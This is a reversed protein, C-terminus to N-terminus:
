KALQFKVSINEETEIPQGAVLTVSYRWQRIANVAAPILLAPGTVSVVDQVLGDRGILARLNVAGEIGHQKADIPYVPDVRSVLRGLQLREGSPSKRSSPELPLRISPYPDAVVVVSGPIDAPAQQKAQPPSSEQERNPPPPASSSAPVSNAAPPNEAQLHPAPPSFAEPAAPTQQQINSAAARDAPALRSPSEGTSIARHPPEGDTELSARPAASPPVARQQRSPPSPKAEPAEAQTGNTENKGRFIGGTQTQDNDHPSQRVLPADVNPAPTSKPATVPASANDTSNRSLNRNRAYRLIANRAAPSSTLWGIGFSLVAVLFILTTRKGTEKRRVPAYVAKPQRNNEGYPAKYRAAAERLTAAPAQTQNSVTQGAAWNKGQSVDVGAVSEEAPRAEAVKEAEPEQDADPEPTVFVPLSAAEAAVWTRIQQRAHESLDIFRVGARLKSESKWVVQGHAEIRDKSGPLQIRISRLETDVLPLAVALCLGEESIDSVIGGNEDGLKAVILRNLRTRARARREAVSPIPTAETPTDTM